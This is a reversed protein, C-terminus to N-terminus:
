IIRLHDKMNIELNFTNIFVRVMKKIRKGSEKMFTEMLTTINVMVKGKAILLIERMDIEMTLFMFEKVPIAGKLGIELIFIEVIYVKVICMCYERVMHYIM